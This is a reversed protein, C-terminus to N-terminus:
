HFYQQGRLNEHEEVTVATSVTRNNSDDNGQQDIGNDLISTLSSLTLAGISLAHQCACNLRQRDFRKELGINTLM